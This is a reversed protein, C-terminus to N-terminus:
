QLPLMLRSLVRGDELQSLEFRGGFKQMLTQCARLHKGPPSDLTSPQDDDRRALDLILQPNIRSQDTISIELWQPNALRCWIDIRQGAQSRYCAALLLEYLVMGVKPHVGTATSNSTLNHVQTWLQRQNALHEIRALSQRLLKAVPLSSGELQLQWGETQFLQEIQEITAQSKVLPPLHADVSEQLAKHQERLTQCHQEVQRMQYWNLCDHSAQQQQYYELAVMSRYREALHRVLLAVSEVLLPEWHRETRDCFIVVGISDSSRIDRLPLALVQGLKQGSLWQCTEPMLEAASLQLINEFVGEMVQPADLTALSQLFPDQDLDAPATIVFQPASDVCAAMQDGDSDWLLIAGAAAPLVDLLSHLAGAMLQNPDTAQDQLDLGQQIAMQLGQQQQHEIQLQHRQHGAKLAQGVCHMLNSEAATWPHPKLSGMLLVQDLPQEPTTSVLLSKIGLADIIPRWTLLRLDDDLNPIAIAGESRRMMNRDIESLAPFPTTTPQLKPTHIQNVIWFRNTAPDVQLIAMWQAQLQLCVREMIQQQTSPWHDSQLVSQLISAAPGSEGTVPRDEDVVTPAALAALQAFAQILYKEQDKWVRPETGEVALFGCLQQDCFIPACLLSRRKLRHMLRTPAQTHVASEIESVAVVQHKSLAQYFPQVESLPVELPTVKKGRSHRNQDGGHILRQWFCQTQSDLWFLSTQTPMLTQHLHRMVVTLREDLGTLLNLESLAVQLAQYFQESSQQQPQLAHLAAGLASTLISLHTMDEPRPTGGWHHSGLIMLGYSTQQHRLPYILAGEINNRQAVAQWQGARQDTQLNAVVAPQGTLLVQDFHDGPLAKLEQRAWAINEANPMAGLVGQLNRQGPQCTAIWALPYEFVNEIFDLAIGILPEVQEQLRLQELVAQLAVLRQGHGTRETDVLKLDRTRRRDM